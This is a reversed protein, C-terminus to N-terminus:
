LYEDSDEEVATMIKMQGILCDTHYYGGAVENYEEDPEIHRGCIECVPQRSMQREWKTEQVIDHLFSDHDPDGTLMLTAYQTM